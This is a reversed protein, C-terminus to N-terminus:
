HFPDSALWFFWHFLDVAFAIDLSIAWCCTGLELSIHWCCTCCGTFYGLLLYWLRTFCTVLLHLM